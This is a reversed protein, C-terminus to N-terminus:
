QLRLFLFDDPVIDIAKVSGEHKLVTVGHLAHRQERLMGFRLVEAGHAALAAM